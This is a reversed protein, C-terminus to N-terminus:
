FKECSKLAESDVKMWHCFIPGTLALVYYSVSGSAPLNKSYLALCYINKPENTMFDTVKTQWQLMFATVSLIYVFSCPHTRTNGVKPISCHTKIM